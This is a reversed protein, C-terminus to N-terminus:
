PLKPCYWGVVKSDSAIPMFIAMKLKLTLAWKKWAMWIFTLRVAVLRAAVPYRSMHKVLVHWCLALVLISARMTRVLEYPAEFNNIFSSDVEINMKEDVVLQIGMRGLLEMTTTIDHLHPINGISVPAESLITAALIPLPRMKPVLSELKEM